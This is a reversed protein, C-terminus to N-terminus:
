AHLERIFPRLDARVEGEHIVVCDPPFEQRFEYGRARLETIFEQLRDLCAGEIDHLVVLPWALHSCEDLAREVWGAAIWDGPVCNWLVCTYAEDVLLDRAHVSLLRTDLFGGGGFPRFLRHPHVLGGLQRQADGIEREAYEKSPNEGLPVSHSLSHNGMWHGAAHADRALQRGEATMLNAGVCFFTSRVHNAALISLVRDTVGPTPGNDFSLTIPRVAM